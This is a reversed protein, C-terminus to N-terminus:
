AGPVKNKKLYKKYDDPEIAATKIKDELLGLKIKGFKSNVFKRALKEREVLFVRVGLTTTSEFIAELIRDKNGIASLVTLKIADRQKKMRINEIFADLAGAKMIKKIALDYLKPDLDDINTEIQLISDKSTQIEKEGIILRLINPQEKLNYYGTGLGIKEVRIRPLASYRKALTTIIAAGTPTVLEKKIGSDYIPIGKLLNLTAPAPVTLIGHATKVTGSGVNLPSSYVEKAGFYELGIVAGIIDVIADIAGVEHFHIKNIPLGHAKAEAEALRLFIAKSKSKVTKSLKSSNIIRSIDALNRHPQDKSFSVEFYIGSVMQKKVKSVKVRFNKLNLKDLEKELYSLPLGADLLAGLIMNGSIGSSCDFYAIKM